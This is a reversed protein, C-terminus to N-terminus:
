IKSILCAMLIIFTKVLRSMSKEALVDYKVNCATLHKIADEKAENFVFEAEKGADYYVDLGQVGFVDKEKSLSIYSELSPNEIDIYLFWENDMVYMRRKALVAWAFAICHPIDKLATWIYKLEFHHKFLVEKM